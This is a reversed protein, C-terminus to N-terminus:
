MFERFELQSLVPNLSINSSYMLLSPLINSKEEIESIQMDECLLKSIIVTKCNKELNIFIWLVFECGSRNIPLDVM